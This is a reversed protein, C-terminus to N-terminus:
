SFCSAIFAPVRERLVRPADGEILLHGVGEMAVLEGRGGAIELVVESSWIPLITDNTGHFLLFPRARLQDAHECGASQTAFTCVGVVADAIPSSDLAAGVAIAGGFSHGLTVYRQAGLREALLAAAGFDAVCADIDNPRRYGVRMVGIGESALERGLDHYLGDAPGLLGGLAGGGCLVVNRASDPGHWLLTMLGSTTFVEVHRLSADIEVQQIGLVRLGGVNMAVVSGSVPWHPWPPGVSQTPRGVSHLARHVLGVHATVPALGRAGGETAARM